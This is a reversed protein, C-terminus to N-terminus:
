VVPFRSTVDVLLLFSCGDLTFLDMEVTSWSAVPMERPIVPDKNNRCANEQCIECSKILQEIDKNIQPWYVSDTAHMKTHDTHFHGKHLQTLIDEQCQSPIVIRTGKLVLGDLISLEDQYNWFSKLNDPCENRQKPWGQIITHKLAILM